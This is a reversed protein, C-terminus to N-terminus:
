GETLYVIYPFLGCIYYINNRKNRLGNISARNLLDFNNNKSVIVTNMQILDNLNHQPVNADTLYSKTTILFLLILFIEKLNYKIFMLM